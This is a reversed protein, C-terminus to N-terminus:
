NLPTASVPFDMHSFSVIGPPNGAAFLEPMFGYLAHDAHYLIEIEGLPVEDPRLDYPCFNLDRSFSANGASDTVFACPSGGLCIPAPGNATLMVGWVDYLANEIFGTMQIQLKATHGTCHIRDQGWAKLWRGLTIPKDTGARSPAMQPSSAASRIPGRTGDPAVYVGVNRLPINLLAPDVTSAPVHFAELFFPDVLSVLLTDPPSDPTLPLPEGGQPNYAGIDNFGIPGFPGLNFAPGGLFRNVGTVVKGPINRTQANAGTAGAALLCAAAGAIMWNRM